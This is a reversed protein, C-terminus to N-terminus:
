SEVWVWNATDVLIDSGGSGVVGIMGSPSVGWVTSEFGDSKRRVRDGVKIPRPPPTLGHWGHLPPVVYTAIEGDPFRVAYGGNDPELDITMGDAPRSTPTDNM